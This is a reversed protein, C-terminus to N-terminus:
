CSPSVEDTSRIKIALYLDLIADRLVRVEKNGQDM